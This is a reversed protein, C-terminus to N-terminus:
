VVTRGKNDQWDRQPRDINENRYIAAKLIYSDMKVENMQHLLSRIDKPFCTGGFGKKGDHGPVQTHSVNIREDLLTLRKVEKYSVDLKECFDYVENFFSVKTALFCNRINKCLEAERTSCFHIVKNEGILQKILNINSNDKDHLGFIWDKCDVVDQKWNKETLFEPMFNVGMSMSTGVPVTSRLIIKDTEAGFSKLKSVVSDVISLHCSGDENMPTPVCIFILDCGMAIRDLPWDSKSEDPM